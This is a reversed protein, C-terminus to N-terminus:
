ILKYRKYLQNVDFNTVVSYTYTTLQLFTNAKQIAENISNAKISTFQVNGIKFNFM